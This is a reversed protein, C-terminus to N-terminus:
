RYHAVPADTDLWRAGRRSRSRAWTCLTPGCTPVKALFTLVYTAVGDAVEGRKGLGGNRGRRRTRAEKDTRTRRESWM